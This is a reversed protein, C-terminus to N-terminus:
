KVFAEQLIDEAEASSAAYRRCLGLMKSKYKQYLVFQAKRDNRQCALLLEAETM